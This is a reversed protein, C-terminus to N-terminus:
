VVNHLNGVREYKIVGDENVKKYKQGLKTGYRAYCSECMIAWVGRGRIPCDYLLDPEQKGCLDCVHAGLWYQKKKSM